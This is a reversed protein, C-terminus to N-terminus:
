TCTSLMFYSKKTIIPASLSVKLNVFVWTFERSNYIPDNLIEETKIMKNEVMIRVLM